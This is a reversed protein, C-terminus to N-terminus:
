RRQQLRERMARSRRDLFEDYSHQFDIWRSTTDAEFTRRASPERDVVVRRERLMPGILPLEAQSLDVLDVKTGLAEELRAVWQGWAVAGAPLDASPMIAIDVDRFPEGRAVSGFVYAWRVHPEDQLLLRATTLAQEATM